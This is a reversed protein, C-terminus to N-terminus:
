TLDQDWEEAESCAIDIAKELNNSEGDMSECPGSTRHEASSWM